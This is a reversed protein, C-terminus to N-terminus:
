KNPAPITFVGGPTTVLPQGNIPYGYDDTKYNGWSQSYSVGGSIRICVNDIAIDLASNNELDCANLTTGGKLGRWDAAEACGIAGAQALLLAVVTARISVAARM